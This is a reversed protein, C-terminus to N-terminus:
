NILIFKKVERFDKNKFILIYTNNPLYSFYFYVKENKGLFVDTKDYVTKGLIDTILINGMIDEPLNNYIFFDGGNPNPALLIKTDTNKISNEVCDFDFTSLNFFETIHKEVACPRNEIFNIITNNLTDRWDSISEYYDWRKIHRPMEPEFLKELKNLKEILLDKQFDNNLLEAYRAIFQNKFDQNKILKRFL